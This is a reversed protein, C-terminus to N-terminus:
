MKNNKKTKIKIYNKKFNFNFDFGREESKRNIGRREEDKKRM